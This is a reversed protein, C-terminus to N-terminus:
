ILSLQTFILLFCKRRCGGRWDERLNFLKSSKGAQYEQSGTKQSICLFRWSYLCHCFCSQQGRHCKSHCVDNQSNEYPEQVAKHSDQSNRTCGSRGRVTKSSDPTPQKRMTTKQKQIKRRGLLILKGDRLKAPSEEWGICQAHFIFM